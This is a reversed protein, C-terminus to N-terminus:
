DKYQKRITKRNNNHKFYIRKTVNNEDIKKFEKEYFIFFVDNLDHFMHITKEFTIADINKIPDLFNFSVNIDKDILFLKIDDADLTVNYRLISLLTYRKSNDISNKKLIGIVEERSLYNPTSMLFSEQKIKEIENLKNIYIFQLNTYYLDDKYFDQYLKDTKEFNHIWDDNLKNLENNLGDSQKNYVIEM